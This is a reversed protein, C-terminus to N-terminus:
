MIVASLSCLVARHISFMSPPISTPWTYRTRDTGMVLQFGLFEALHDQFVLQAYAVFKISEHIVEDVSIFVFPSFNHLTLQNCMMSVISIKM